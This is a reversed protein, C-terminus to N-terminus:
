ELWKAGRDQMLVRAEHRQVFEINPSIALVRTALAGRFGTSKAALRVHGDRELVSVDMADVADELQAAINASARARKRALDTALRFTPQLPIDLWELLLAFDRDSKPRALTPDIWAEVRDLTTLGLAALQSLARTEGLRNLRAQLKNKWEAQTSAVDDRRAGMLALAADYSAQRDTAGDRLLLYTDIKVSDVHTYSIRGGPQQTPDVARIRDGDDLFMSYGGSLLVRRAAVEGPRARKLTVPPTSWIPQPILDAESIAGYTIVEDSKSADGVSYFRPRIQIGGEAHSALASSPISRDTFWSPFLYTLAATIPATVLSSPFFRPPGVAYAQSVFMGDRQLQGVSAVSVGHKRLWRDLGAVAASNAAVIVCKEPGLERISELLIESVPPASSLLDEASKALERIIQSSEHSVRHKLRSSEKILDSVGSDISPNFEIPQPQTILRGRVARACGVLDMWYDPPESQTHLVLKRVASDFRAGPSDSVRVLEIGNEIIEQTLAYRKMADDIRNM